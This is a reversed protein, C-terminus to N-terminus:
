SCGTERAADDLAAAKEVEGKKLVETAGTTGLAAHDSCASKANFLAAHQGRGVYRHLADKTLQAEAAAIGSPCIEFKLLVTAVQGKGGSGKLVCTV